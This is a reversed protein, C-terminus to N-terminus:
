FGRLESLHEFTNKIDDLTLEDVLFSQGDDLVVDYNINNGNFTPVITHIPEGGVWEELLGSEVIQYSAVVLQEMVNYSDHEDVNDLLRKMKAMDSQDFSPSVVIRFEMDNGLEVIIVGELSLKIDNLFYGIKM